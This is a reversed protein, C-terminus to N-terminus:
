SADSSTATRCALPAEFRFVTGRPSEAVRAAPWDTFASPFAPPVPESRAAEPVTVPTSRAIVTPSSWPPLSLRDPIISVFAATRGPSEPPGSIFAAPWTTPISVAAGPDPCAAVVVRIRDGDVLGHRDGHLDHMAFCRGRDMDAPGGEEADLDYLVGVADPATMVDTTGPLGAAAAPRVGPSRIVESPPRATEDGAPRVVNM